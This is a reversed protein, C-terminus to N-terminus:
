FINIHIRLKEKVKEIVEQTIIENEIGNLPYKKLTVNNYFDILQKELLKQPINNIALTKVLIKDNTKNGSLQNENLNIEYHANYEFIKIQNTKNSEVSNIMLEALNGNDFDIRVKIIDPLERCASITNATVKRVNSNFLQLVSGIVMRAKILLKTESCDSYYYNLFLPNNCIKHYAAFADHYIIPQQIQLVEGAEENLKLLEIQENLSLNHVSHLFVPKSYKIALEILPLYIKEPSAFAIVESENLLKQFSSYILEPSFNKPYEFQFSPDFIGVLQYSDFANIISAYSECYNKGVIGIKLM